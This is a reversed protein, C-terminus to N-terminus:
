IMDEMSARNNKKPGNRFDEREEIIEIKQEPAVYDTDYQKMFEALQEPSMSDLLEQQKRAEDLIGDDEKSRKEGRWKKMYEAHEARKRHRDELGIQSKSDLLVVISEIEDRLKLFARIIPPRKYSDKFTDEIGEVIPSTYDLIQELITRLNNDVM